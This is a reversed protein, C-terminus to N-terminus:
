TQQIGCYICHKKRPKIDTSSRFLMVHGIIACQAQKSQVWKLGRKKGGLAKKTNNRRLVSRIRMQEERLVPDQNLSM